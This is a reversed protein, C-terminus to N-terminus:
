LSNSFCNQNPKLVLLFWCKQKIGGSEVGKVLIVTKFLKIGVVTTLPVNLISSLYQITPRTFFNFNELINETFVCPRAESCNIRSM